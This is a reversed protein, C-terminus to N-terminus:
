RANVQWFFVMAGRSGEATMIPLASAEIPHRSGDLSRINFASHAPRGERLAITLPLEELPITEGHRDFPGWTTGWEEPSMKGAEEYRRGLLLAAAENYFVLVGQEDVLFGPTSLSAILNRAMILEIPKQAV